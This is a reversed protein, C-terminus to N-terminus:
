IGLEGDGDEYVVMSRILKVTASQQLREPEDLIEGRFKPEKFGIVLLQIPDSWWTKTEM